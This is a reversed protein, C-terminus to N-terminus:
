QYCIGQNLENKSALEQIGKVLCITSIYRTITKEIKFQNVNSYSNISIHM